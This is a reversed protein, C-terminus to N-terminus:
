TKGNKQTTGAGFGFGLCLGRGRVFARAQLRKSLCPAPRLNRPRDISAAIIVGLAAAHQLRPAFATDWKGEARLHAIKADIIPALISLVAPRDCLITNKGGALIKQTATLNFSIHNRQCCSFNARDVSMFMWAQGPNIYHPTGEASNIIMVPSDKHRSFLCALLEMM